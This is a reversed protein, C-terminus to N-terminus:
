FNVMFSVSLNRGPSAVGSAFEIYHENLLNDLRALVSFNNNLEFRFNLGATIWSPSGAYKLLDETTNENVIPTLDHNDIGETINFDKINKKANFRIAAGLEFRDVKHNLEFQGFLPPISSM